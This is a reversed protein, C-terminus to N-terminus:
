GRRSVRIRRPFNGDLLCVSCGTETWPLASLTEAFQKLQGCHNWLTMAFGTREWAGSHDQLQQMVTEIVSRVQGAEGRPQFVHDPAYQNALAFGDFLYQESREHRIWDLLQYVRHRYPGNDPCLSDLTRVLGGPDPHNTKFAGTELMLEALCARRPAPAAELARIWKITIASPLTALMQATILRLKPKEALHLSWYAAILPGTQSWPLGRVAWLFHRRFDPPLGPIQKQAEPSWIQGFPQLARAGAEELLSGYATEETFRELAAGLHTQLNQM